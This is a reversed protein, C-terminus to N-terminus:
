RKIKYKQIEDLLIRCIIHNCASRSDNGITLEKYVLKTMWTYKKPLDSAKINFFLPFVYMQRRKFKEYILDIEENACTSKITNKSLIIIAYNCSNVGEDFNKYDREDGLLMKHRDYWVPLGYNTLHFLISEVIPHRDKSSFCFFLMIDGELVYIVISQLPVSDSKNAIKPKLNRPFSGGIGQTIETESDLIPLILLDHLIIGALYERQLDNSYQPDRLM